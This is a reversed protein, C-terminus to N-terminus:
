LSLQEEAQQQRHDAADDQAHPNGRRRGVADHRGGAGRDQRLHAHGHQGRM